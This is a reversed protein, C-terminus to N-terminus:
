SACIVIRDPEDVRDLHVRVAAHQGDVELSLYESMMVDSVVVRNTPTPLRGEHVLAMGTLDVEEEDSALQVLTEGDHEHLTGVAICVPSAAVTAGGELTPAELAVSASIYIQSYPPSVLSEKIM